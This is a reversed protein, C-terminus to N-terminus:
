KRRLFYRVTDLSQMISLHTMSPGYVVVANLVGVLEGRKNFVASGSNGPLASCDLFVRDGSVKAVIGKSLTDTLGVPSGLIYITEGRTVKNALPFFETNAMDIHILALDHMPSTSLIVADYQRGDHTIVTLDVDKNVCHKATLIDGNSSIFSGSCTGHATLPLTVIGAGKRAKEPVEVVPERKTMQIEVVRNKIAPKDGCATLSLLLLALIKM